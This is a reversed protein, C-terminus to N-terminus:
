PLGHGGKRLERLWALFATREDDGFLPEPPYVQDISAWPEIPQRCVLDKIMVQPESPGKDQQRPEVISEEDSM